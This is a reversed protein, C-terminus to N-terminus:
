VTMQPHLGISNSSATVIGSPIKALLRKTISLDPPGTVVGALDLFRQNGDNAMDSELQERILRSVPIGSRRSRDKLWRLLEDTLRITLRQSMEDLQLVFTGDGSM